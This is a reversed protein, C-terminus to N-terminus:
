SGAYRRLRAPAQASAVSIQLYLATPVCSWPLGPRYGVDESYQRLTAVSSAQPGRPHQPPQSDRMNARLGPISTAIARALVSREPWCFPAGFRPSASSVRPNCPDPVQVSPMIGMYIQSSRHWPLALRRHCSHAFHDPGSGSIVMGAQPKQFAAFLPRASPRVRDCVRSIQGKKCKRRCGCFRRCRRAPRASHGAMPRNTAPLDPRHRPNTGPRTSLCLSLRREPSIQDVPDVRFM